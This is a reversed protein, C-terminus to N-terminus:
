FTSSSSPTSMTTAFKPPDPPMFEEIVSLNKDKVLHWGDCEHGWRYHEANDRSIAIPRVAKSQSAAAQAAAPKQTRAMHTGRKFYHHLKIRSPTM